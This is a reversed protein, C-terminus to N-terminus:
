NVKPASEIRKRTTQNLEHLVDYEKVSNWKLHSNGGVSPFNKPMYENELSKESISHSVFSAAM